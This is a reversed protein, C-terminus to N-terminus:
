KVWLVPGFQGFAATFNGMQARDRTLLFIAQGQRAGVNEHDHRWFQLRSSPFCVPFRRLLAQFWRTETANNVLVIAADTREGDYEEILKDVWEQTASYPPNLWLGGTCWPLRLGDHAKDIYREAKVVTNALACSAPDLEIGGLVLRAAEIYMAPTYWEDSDYGDRQSVPVAPAETDM